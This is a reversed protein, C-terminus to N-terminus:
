REWLLLLGAIILIPVAALDAATVGHTTTPRLLVRGEVDQSLTWWLVAIAGCGAAALVRLGLSLGRHVLLGAAATGFTLLLLAEHSV